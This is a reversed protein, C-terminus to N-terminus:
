RLIRAVTATDNRRAPTKKGARDARASKAFVFREFTFWTNGFREEEGLEDRAGDTEGGGARGGVGSRRRPQRVTASTSPRNVRPPVAPPQLAARAPLRPGLYADALQVRKVGEQEMELMKGYQLLVDLSMRPPDFTVKGKDKSPNILFSGMEDM